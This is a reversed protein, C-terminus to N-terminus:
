SWASSTKEAGSNTLYVTGAKNCSRTVWFKFLILSSVKLKQVYKPMFELYINRAERAELTMQNKM